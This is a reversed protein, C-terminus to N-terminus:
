KKYVLIAEKEKLIGRNKDMYDLINGQIEKPIADWNLNLYFEIIAITHDLNTKYPFELISETFYVTCEGDLTNLIDWVTKYDRPTWDKPYSIPDLLPKFKKKFNAIDDPAREVWILYGDDQILSTLQEILQSYENRPFHYLHSALIIDFKNNNNEYFEEFTKNITSVNIDTDLSKINQQLSKFLSKSPELFTIHNFRNAKIRSITEILYKGNGCGVDLINRERKELSILIKSLEKSSNEKETSYNLYIEFPTLNGYFTGYQHNHQPNLNTKM